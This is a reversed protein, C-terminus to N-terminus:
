SASGIAVDASRASGQRASRRVGTCLYRGIGSLGPYDREVEVFIASSRCIRIQYGDSSAASTETPSVISSNTPSQYSLWQWLILLVAPKGDAVVAVAEEAEDLGIRREAEEVRTSRLLTGPAIPKLALSLAVEIARRGIEVQQLLAARHRSM